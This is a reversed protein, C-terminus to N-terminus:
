EVGLAIGGREALRDGLVRALALGREYGQKPGIGRFRPQSPEDGLCLLRERWEPLLACHEDVCGAENGLPASLAPAILNGM